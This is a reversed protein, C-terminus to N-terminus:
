KVNIGWIKCYKSTYVVLVPYVKCIIAQEEKVLLVHEIFM